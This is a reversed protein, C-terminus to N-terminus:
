YAEAPVKKRAQYAYHDEEGEDESGIEAGVQNDASRLIPSPL